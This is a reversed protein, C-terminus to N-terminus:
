YWKICVQIWLSPDLVVETNGLVTFLKRKGKMNRGTEPSFILLASSFGVQRVLTDTHKAAFSYDRNEAKTRYWFLCTNNNKKIM